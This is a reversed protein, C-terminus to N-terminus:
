SVVLQETHLAFQYCYKRFVHVAVVLVSLVIRRRRQTETYEPHHGAETPGPQQQQQHRQREYAAQQRGGGGLVRAGRIVRAPRLRSRREAGPSSLTGAAQTVAVSLDTAAQRTSFAHSHTNM